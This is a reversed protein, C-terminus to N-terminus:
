IYWVSIYVDRCLFKTHWRFSIEFPFSHKPTYIVRGWTFLIVPWPLGNNRAVKGSSLDHGHLRLIDRHKQTQTGREVARPKSQVETPMHALKVRTHADFTLGVNWINKIQHGYGYKNMKIQSGNKYKQQYQLILVPGVSRHKLEAM